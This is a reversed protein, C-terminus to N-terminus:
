SKKEARLNMYFLLTSALIMMSIGSLLLSSRNSMQTFLVALIIAVVSGLNLLIGTISLKM